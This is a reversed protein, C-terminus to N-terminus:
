DVVKEELEKVLRDRCEDCLNLEIFLDGGNNLRVLGYEKWPSPGADRYGKKCYDCIRM